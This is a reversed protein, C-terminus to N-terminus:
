AAGALTFGCHTLHTGTFPEITRWEPGINVKCHCGDPHQDQDPHPLWRDGDSPYHCLNGYRDYPAETYSPKTM